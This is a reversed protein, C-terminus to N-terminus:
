IEKVLVIFVSPSVERHKLDVNMLPFGEIKLMNQELFPRNDVGEVHVHHKEWKVGILELM